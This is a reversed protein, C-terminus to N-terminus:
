KRHSMGMGPISTSGVTVLTAKPYLAQLAKIAEPITLAM